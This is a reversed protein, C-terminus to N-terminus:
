DASETQRGVAVATTVVGVALVAAGINLASYGALGVVLGAIAGGL